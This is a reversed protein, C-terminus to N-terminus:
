QRAFRRVGRRTPPQRRMRVPQDGELQRTAQERNQQDEAFMAWETPFSEKQETTTQPRALAMNWGKGADM